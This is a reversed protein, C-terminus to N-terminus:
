AFLANRMYANAELMATRNKETPNAYFIQDAEHSARVAEEKTKKDLALFTNLYQCALLLKEHSAGKLEIGAQQTFNRIQEPTVKSPTSM